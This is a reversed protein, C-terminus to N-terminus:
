SLNSLFIIPQRMLRSSYMRGSHGWFLGIWSQYKNVNAGVIFSRESAEHLNVLAVHYDVAEEEEPNKRCNELMVLPQNGPKLLM